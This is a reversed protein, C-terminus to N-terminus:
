SERPRFTPVNGHTPNKVNDANSSLPMPRDVVYPLTKNPDVPTHHERPNVPVATMRGGL